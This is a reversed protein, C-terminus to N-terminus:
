KATRLIGMPTCQTGQGLPNDRLVEELVSIMKKKGTFGLIEISLDNADIIAVDYGIAQAIEKASKEPDEPGLTVCRDLPPLAGPCPGDIARVKEGAIAYFIGRKKFLKGVASCAAAFLIRATGAQQLTIEMTEPLTRGLGHPSRYVFKVLLRALPRPHIEDMPIARNQTCAVAKESIFLIDGKKMNPVAYKNVVDVINDDRTIVHTKIAHREYAVGDAERVLNKGENVLVADNQVAGNAKENKGIKIEKNGIKM